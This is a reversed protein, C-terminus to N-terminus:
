YMLSFKEHFRQGPIFGDMASAMNHMRKEIRSSTLGKCGIENEFSICMTNCSRNCLPHKRNWDAVEEQFLNHLVFPTVLLILQMDCGRVTSHTEGKHSHIHLLTRQCHKTLLFMLSFKKTSFNDLSLDM